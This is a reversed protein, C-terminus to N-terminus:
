AGTMVNKLRSGKEIAQVINGFAGLLVDGEGALLARRANVDGSVAM